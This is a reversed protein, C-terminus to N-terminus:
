PRSRAERLDAVFAPVDPYSATAGLAAFHEADAGTLYVGVGRSGAALACEIDSRHDGVMVTEAPEVGLRALAALLHRPDPKVEAVDDRTLLVAHPLPHRALFHELCDRCNRTIIGLRYGATELEALAEPVGAYPASTAVTEMEVELLVQDAQRQFEAAQASDGDLKARAAAIVELVYRNEGMGEDWLGWQQILAYTRQRMKGFDIRTEALTGDFDFIIARVGAYRTPM